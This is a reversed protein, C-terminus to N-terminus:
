MLHLMCCVKLIEDQQVYLLWKEVLSLLLNFVLNFVSSQASEKETIKRQSVEKEVILNEKTKLSLGQLKIIPENRNKLKTCQLDKKINSVNKTTISEFSPINESFVSNDKLTM